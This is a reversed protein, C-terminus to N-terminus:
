SLFNIFETIADDEVTSKHLPQLGPRSLAPSLPERRKLRSKGYSDDDDNGYADGQGEEHWLQTLDSVKQQMAKVHDAVANLSTKMEEQHAELTGQTAKSITAGVKGDPRKARSMYGYDSSGNHLTSEAPNYGSDNDSLYQSLGCEVAQAVFKSLVLEKFADLAESIDQEPQDGITFADFIAGTLACIYVDQWDKILDEAMEENFHELLTKRQQQNTGMKGEDKWPVKISDDNFEKAMKKYYAAIKSKVAEIDGDPIDVGGKYEFANKSM